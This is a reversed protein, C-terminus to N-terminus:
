AGQDWGSTYLERIKAIQQNSLIFM